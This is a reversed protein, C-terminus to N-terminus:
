LATSRRIREQQRWQQDRHQLSCVGLWHVIVRRIEIKHRRSLPIGSFNLIWFNWFFSIEFLPWNEFFLFFILIISSRSSIPVFFCLSFIREWLFTSKVNESQSRFFTRESNKEDELRLQDDYLELLYVLHKIRILSYNGYSGQRWLSLFLSCCFCLLVSLFDAVSGSLHLFSCCCVVVVVYPIHFTMPDEEWREVMRRLSTEQMVLVRCKSATGSKKDREEYTIGFIYKKSVYQLGQDQAIFASGFLM